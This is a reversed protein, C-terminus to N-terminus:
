AACRKALHLDQPVGLGYQYAHGMDFACQKRAITDYLPGPLAPPADYHAAAKSRDVRDVGVGYFWADGLALHGEARHAERESATADAALQVAAAALRASWDRPAGRPPAIDRRVRCLNDSLMRSMAATRLAPAHLCCVHSFPLARDCGESFPLMSRVACFLVSGRTILWLANLAALRQGAESAVMYHWLARQKNGTELAHKAM